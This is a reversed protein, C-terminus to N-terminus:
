FCTSHVLKRDIQFMSFVGMKHCSSYLSCMWKRFSTYFVGIKQCCISFVGMKQCSSYLSCMWKRFASISCVLKRFVYVYLVCRNNSPRMIFYHDGDESVDEDVEILRRELHKFHHHRLLYRFGCAILIIVILCGGTIYLPTLQQESESIFVFM